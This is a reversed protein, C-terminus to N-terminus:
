VQVNGPPQDPVDVDVEMTAVAPAVLPLMVTLAFLLQPEDAACVNVTVTVLGGAVGPAIVPVTATQEPDVLVYVM